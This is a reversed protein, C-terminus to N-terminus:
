SEMREMVSLFPMKTWQQTYLSEGGTHIRSKNNEMRLEGKSGNVPTHPTRTQVVTFSADHRQCFSNSFSLSLQFEYGVGM